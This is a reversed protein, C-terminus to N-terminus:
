AKPEIDEGGCDGPPGELERSMVVELTTGVGTCLALAVRSVGSDDDASRRGSFGM